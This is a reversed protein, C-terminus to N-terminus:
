FGMNGLILHIEGFSENNDISILGTLSNHLHIMDTVCRDDSQYPLKKFAELIDDTIGNGVRVIADCLKLFAEKQECSMFDVSEDLERQARYYRINMRGM